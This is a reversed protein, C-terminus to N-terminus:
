KIKKKVVDKIMAILQDISDQLEYNEKVHKRCNKRLSNFVKKNKILFVIKEAIAEPHPFIYGHYMKEINKRYKICFGTKKNKVIENMPPKDAVICPIGKNMAEILPIGFGESCSPFLLVDVDDYVNKIKSQDVWKTVALFNHPYRKKAKNIASKMEDLYDSNIDVPSHLKFIVNPYKKLVFPITDLFPIVGKYYKMRSVFLVTFNSKSKKQKKINKQKFSSTDVAHPIYAVNKAGHEKYEKVAWKSVGIILDAKKYYGLMKLEADKLEANDKYIGGTSLPEHLTQWVITKAKTKKMIDKIDEGVCFFVIVDLYSSKLQAFRVGPFLKKDIIGKFPIAYIEIEDRELLKNLFRYNEAALANLTPPFVSCWGVKIKKSNKSKLKSDILDFPTVLTKMYRYIKGPTIRHKKM